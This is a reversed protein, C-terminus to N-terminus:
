RGVLESPADGHSRKLRRVTEFVGRFCLIGTNAAAFALGSHLMEQFDSPDTLLQLLFFLLRMM